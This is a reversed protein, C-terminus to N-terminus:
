NNVPVANFYEELTTNKNMVDSAIQKGVYRLHWPEYKYGTISDKGKPYRIIFGYEAAHTQLWEAEVTGGFCDQAPCRGDSGTVDIALGTEHESTGPVASYTRAKEYGDQQVYHNFLSVQTAHSRYGSVGLLHIGQDKAGAFLEAIATAAESRLKRKETTASSIFPINAPVLDQPAYNEPLKFYKNVLVAIAEPQAIVTIADGTESHTGSQQPQQQSQESSTAQGGNSQQANNQNNSIQQNNNPQNENLKAKQADIQEKITQTMKAKATREGNASEDFPKIDGCGSLISALLLGCLGFSIKKNM